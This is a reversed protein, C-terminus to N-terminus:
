DVGDGRAQEFELGMEDRLEISEIELNKACAAARRRGAARGEAMRAGPAGREESREFLRVDDGRQAVIALPAIVQAEARVKVVGLRLDIRRDLHQTRLEASRTADLSNGSSACIRCTPLIRM